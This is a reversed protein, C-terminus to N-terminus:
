KSKLAELGPLTGKALFDLMAGGGTSIFGFKDQLNQNAIAAITDGGGVISFAHPSHAIIQALQETPEKFGAEFNGLPGNWLICKADKCKEALLKISEEGVDLISEDSEVETPQKQKKGRSSEVIIDPAIIVKPNSLLETLDLSADSIKSKGVELGQAKYFDNALAGGIFITDALPLFKEVLPLKTDFKAGGLIFLFPKPPNFAKSLNEVEKEFQFGLYGRMCKAVGVVSAHSRHSVSFGENVYIEGLRALKKSFEQDNKKEGDYLRLNECLIVEGEKMEMVTQHGTEICDECFEIPFINKLYDYVPKLTHSEGEIHSIIVVKAGQERLYKLTPLAQKIRYDDTIKGEEIPVNFDCRILVRRGKIDGCEKLTKYKM